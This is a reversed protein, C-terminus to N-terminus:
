RGAYDTRQDYKIYNAMSFFAYLNKPMYKQLIKYAIFLLLLGIFIMFIIKKRKKHDECRAIFIVLSCILIVVFYIKIEAFACVIFSIGLMALNIYKNNNGDIYYVIAVISIVLCFIGQGANSYGTFGFIGNCFDVSVKLVFFQYIVLFLNIIHILYMMDIIRKYYKETLYYKCLYYMLFGSFIYRYRAVASYLYFKSWLISCATYLLFIGGIILSYDTRSKIVIRRGKKMLMFLVVNVVNLLDPVFFLINYHINISYLIGSILCLLIQIFLNINILKKISITM